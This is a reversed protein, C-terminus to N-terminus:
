PMETISEFVLMRKGLPTSLSATFLANRAILPCIAHGSPESRLLMILVRTASQGTVEPHIQECGTEEVTFVIVTGGSKTRVARPLDATARSEDIQSAPVPGDVPRPRPPAVTRQRTSPHPPLVTRRQTSPHPAPPVTTTTSPLVVTETATDLPPFLSAASTSTTPPNTITPVPPSATSVGPGCAATALATTLAAFCLGLRLRGTRM